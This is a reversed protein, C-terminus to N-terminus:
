ASKYSNPGVCFGAVVLLGLSFSSDKEDCCTWCPGASVNGDGEHGAIRLPWNGRGINLKRPSQEIKIAKKRKKKGKHIQGSSAEGHGNHRPVTAGSGLRPPVQSIGAATPWDSWRPLIRAHRKQCIGDLSLLYKIQKRDLM